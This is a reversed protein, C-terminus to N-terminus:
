RKADRVKIILKVNTLKEWKEVIKLELENLTQEKTLPDRTSFFKRESAPLSKLIEKKITQWDKVNMAYSKIDLLVQELREEDM